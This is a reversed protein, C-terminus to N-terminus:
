PARTPANPLRSCQWQGDLQLPGLAPPNSADPTSAMSGTVSGAIQTDAEVIRATGSGQYLPPGGGSDVESMRLQAPYTGPTLEPAMVWISVDYERGDLQFDSSLLLAAGGAPLAGGGCAHALSAHVKGVVSGSLFLDWARPDSQSSPREPTSSHPEPTAAGSHPRPAIGCASPLIVVGLVIM